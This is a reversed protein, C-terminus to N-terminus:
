HYTCLLETIDVRDSLGKEKQWSGITVLRSDGLVMATSCTRVCFGSMSMPAWEETVTDYYMACTQRMSGNDLNGITMLTDLHQVLISDRTPITSLKRWFSCRTGRVTRCNVYDTVKSLPVTYLTSNPTGSKTQGLGVVLSDGVVVVQPLELPVPLPPLFIWNPTSSNLNIAEVTSTLGKRCQGGVVIMHGDFTATGASCRAMLLRPVRSMTWKPDGSTGLENVRLSQVADSLESSQTPRKGSTYQGGVVHLWGDASTLSFFGVAYLCAPLRCWEERSHTLYYVESPLRASGDYGGGIFVHEM